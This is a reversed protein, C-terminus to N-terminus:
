VYKFSKNVFIILDYLYYLHLNKEINTSKQLPIM